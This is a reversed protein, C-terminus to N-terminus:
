KLDYWNKGFDDAVELEVALNVAHTMKDRVLAQLKEEEGQEVEFVLEDHVQVLMESKLGVEKLAKAIDVMAKKIIDAATGQIPANMAMRKAFEREMYNTSNIEKIYRRRNFLTEVYGKEKCEAVTNDM